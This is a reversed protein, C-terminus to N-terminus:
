PRPRYFVRVLVAGLVSFCGVALAWGFDRVTQLALTATTLQRELNAILGTTWAQTQQLHYMATIAREMMAAMQDGFEIGFIEDPRKGAEMAPRVEDSSLARMVLSSYRRGSVAAATAGSSVCPQQRM